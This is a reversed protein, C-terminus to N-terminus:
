LTTTRPTACRSAMQLTSWVRTPWPALWCTMPQESASQSDPAQIMHARLDRRRCNTPEVVALVGATLTSAAYFTSGGTVVMFGCHAECSLSSRM